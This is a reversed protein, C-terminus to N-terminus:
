KTSKKPTQNYRKTYWEPYTGRPDNDLSYVGIEMYNEYGWHKRCPEGLTVIKGDSTPFLADMVSGALNDIDPKDLNHYKGVLEAARKRSLSTPIKLVAVVCLKVTNWKTFDFQNFALSLELKWGEYEKPMYAKGIRPVRPRAKGKPTMYVRQVVSPAGVGGSMIEVRAM